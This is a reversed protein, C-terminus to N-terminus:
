QGEQAPADQKQEEDSDRDLPGGPKLMPSAVINAPDLSGQKQLARLVKDETGLGMGISVRAANATAVQEFNDAELVVEERDVGISSLSVRPTSRQKQFALLEADQVILDKDEEISTSDHGDKPMDVM